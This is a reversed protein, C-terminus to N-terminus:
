SFSAVVQTMVSLVPSLCAFASMRRTMTIRFLSIGGACLYSKADKDCFHTDTNVHTM